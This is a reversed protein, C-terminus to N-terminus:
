AGAAGSPARRTLRHCASEITKMAQLRLEPLPPRADRREFVGLHTLMAKVPLPNTDVELARCVVDWTSQSERLGIEVAQVALAPTVNGIVTIGGTGGNEVWEALLRDNGCWLAFPVQGGNEIAMRWSMLRPLSADGDKMGILNDIQSLAAVTEPVLDTGTRSPIVYAAVAIPSQTAIQQYYEVVARQPLKLYCPTSIQIVSAGAEAARMAETIADRATVAACGAWVDVHGQSQHSAHRILAMREDQTLLTGEGTSGSCVIADVGAQLQTDVLRDFSAWDVEGSQTLPTALATAVRVTKTM